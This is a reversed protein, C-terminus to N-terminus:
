GFVNKIIRYSNRKDEIVRLERLLAIRSAVVAQATRQLKNLFDRSEKPLGNKGFKSTKYIYDVFREDRKIFDVLDQYVPTKGYTSKEKIFDIIRKLFTYEKYGHMDIEKLYGILYNIEEESLLEDKNNDLKPSTLMSFELGNKTLSINNDNLKLMGMQSLPLLISYFLKNVSSREHKENERNKPFGNYKQLGRAITANNFTDLVKDQEPAKGEKNTLNAIVRLMAKAAFFSNFLFNKGLGFESSEISAPALLKNVDDSPKDTYKAYDKYEENEAKYKGKSDKVEVKGTEESTSSEADVLEDLLKLIRDKNDKTINIEIKM